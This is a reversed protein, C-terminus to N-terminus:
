MVLTLEDEALLVHIDYWKDIFRLLTQRKPQGTAPDKFFPKNQLVHWIRAQGYDRALNVVQYYIHAPMGCFLEGWTSRGWALKIV